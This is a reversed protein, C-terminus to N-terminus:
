DPTEELWRIRTHRGAIVELGGDTATGDSWTYDYDCLARYRTEADCSDLTAGVISSTDQAPDVNGAAIIEALEANWDSANKAVAARALKNATSISLEPRQAGAGAGAPLALAALAILILTLRRM